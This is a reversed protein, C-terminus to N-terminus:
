AKFAPEGDIVIPSAVGDIDAGEPRFRMGRAIVQEPSPADSAAAAPAEPAPTEATPAEPQGCGALLALAGTVAATTLFRIM